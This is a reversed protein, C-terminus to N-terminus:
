PTGQDLCAPSGRRARIGAAADMIQERRLGAAAYLAFVNEPPTEPPVTHSAALIYGGGGSTMTQILRATEREVEAATGTPLLGQTDVGGMFALTKGYEAKLRAAEMGPCGHQIPNLVDVGIEVLDPIIDPISGCCHYATWLGRRKGAALVRALHPKVLDRWAAPSMLMSRQSAVDDGTWLMDLRYRDMAAESLELAFDACRGMLASAETPHLALDLIGEEMGRLRNYMEFACPSVDCALFARSVSADAAVPGMLGVLTERTEEPFRYAAWGAADAGALPSSVIQNFSGGKEWRIGWEDTHGEGEREHVIGEMAHNNNVWTMRVDNGLAEGLESPLIGLLRALWRATDPHFWLFIPLRDVPERRLAAHVRQQSTM